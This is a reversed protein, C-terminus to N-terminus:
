KRVKDTCHQYQIYAETNIIISKLSPSIKDYMSLVISQEEAM